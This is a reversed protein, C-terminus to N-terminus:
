FSLAALDNPTSKESHSFTAAAPRCSSGINKIIFLILINLWSLFGGGQCAKQM